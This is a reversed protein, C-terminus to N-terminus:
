PDHQRRVPHRCNGSTFRSLASRSLVEGMLHFGGAYAMKKIGFEHNQSAINVCITAVPAAVSVHYEGRERLGRMPGRNPGSVSDLLLRGRLKCPRLQPCKSRQDSFGREFWRSCKTLLAASAAANTRM